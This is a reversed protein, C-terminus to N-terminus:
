KKIYKILAKACNNIDDFIALAKRIAVAYEPATNKGFLAIQKM